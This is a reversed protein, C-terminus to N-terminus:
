NAPRAVINATVKPFMAPSKMYISHSKSDSFGQVLVKWGQYGNSSGFLFYPEGINCNSANSEFGDYDSNIQIRSSSVNVRSLEGNNVSITVRYKKGCADSGLYVTSYTIKLGGKSEYLIGSEVLTGASQAISDADAGNNAQSATQTSSDSRSVINAKISPFATPSKMYLEHSSTASFGKAILNWKEYGPSTGFLYYPAGQNCNSANAEFGDYDDELELRSGLVRVKDPEGNNITINVKYKKGCADIGLYVTSYAVKLGGKSQYLMGSDVVTGVPKDNSNQPVKNIEESKNASSGSGVKPDSQKVQRVSSETSSLKKLYAIDEQLETIKQKLQSQVDSMVQCNELSKSASKIAREANSISTSLNSLSYTKRHNLYDSDVETLSQTCKLEVIKKELRPVDRKLFTVIQPMYDKEFEASCSSLLKQGLNFAEPLLDQNKRKEKYEEYMQNCNSSSQGFANIALLNIILLIFVPLVKKM